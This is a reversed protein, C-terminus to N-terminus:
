CDDEGASWKKRRRLIRGKKLNINGPIINRPYVKFLKEDIPGYADKPEIVGNKKDGIKMGMLANELGSIVQHYGILIHMPRRATTSDFIKGSDFRLTYHFVVVKNKEVQM